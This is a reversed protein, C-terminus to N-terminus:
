RPSLIFDSIAEVLGPVLPLDSRSYTAVNSQPDAPAVKMVHNMGEIDIRVVGDRATTLAGADPATVQLDTTGHVVLAPGDYDAMLGAPDKTLWSIMYPQVSARYLSELGAPTPTTRGAELASLAEENAAALAPPLTALQERLVVGAPRGAGSVLVLGCVEPNDVAAMQGILAGESHGIVWACPQGTRATLDNIWARADDVYDDFVLDAESLGASASAGIGRKDIRLTSVGQQALGEALLRYSGATVGLPSNGDRDTPGSGPLIIAVAQANDATLLTGHLPAPESALTVDEASQSALITMAALAIIASM